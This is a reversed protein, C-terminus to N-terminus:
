CTKKEFTPSFNRVEYLVRHIAVLPGVAISGWFVFVFCVFFHLKRALNKQVRKKTHAGSHTQAFVFFCSVRFHYPSGLM